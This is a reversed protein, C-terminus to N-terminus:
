LMEETPNSLEVKQTIKDEASKVPISMKITTKSTKQTRRQM